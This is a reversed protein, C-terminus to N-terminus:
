SVNKNCKQLNYKTFLIIHIKWKAIGPTWEFLTIYGSSVSQPVGRILFCEKALCFM